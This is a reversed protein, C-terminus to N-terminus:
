PAISGNWWLQKPNGAHRTISCRMSMWCGNCLHITFSKGKMLRYISLCTDRQFISRLAKAVQSGSKNPLPVVWAYKSLADVVTLLFKTRCNLAIMCKSDKMEVLDAQWLEDVQPKLITHSREFHVRRPRHLTFAPEGQLYHWLTQKPVGLEKAAGTLEKVNRIFAYPSEADLFLTDLTEQWKKDRRMM